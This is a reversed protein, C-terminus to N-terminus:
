SPLSPSCHSNRVSFALTLLPAAHEHLLERNENLIKLEYPCITLAAHGKPTYCLFSVPPMVCIPLTALSM